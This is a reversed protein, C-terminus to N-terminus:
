GGPLLAYSWDLVAGITAEFVEPVAVLVLVLGILVYTGYRDLGVWRAYLRRPLLGGLVRSGDLPPLPVLNLVCLVVNLAFALALAEAVFLSWSYTLWVLAAAIVALAANAAPGSAGVLMMARQPDRFNATTVGVPRAWGFFFSGGSGLYTVVLAVTGWADLHVLPNLTLRGERRPTSDGLRDASYGHALEHAVLSLLLLPLTVVFRLLLDLDSM